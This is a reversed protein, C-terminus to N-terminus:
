RDVSQSDDDVQGYYARLTAEDMPEKPEETRKKRKEEAKFKKDM